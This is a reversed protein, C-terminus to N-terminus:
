SCKRTADRYSGTSGSRCRGQRRGGLAKATSPNAGGNLRGTSYMDSMQSGAAYMRRASLTSQRPLQPHQRQRPRLSRSPPRRRSPHQNQSSRASMLSRQRQCWQMLKLLHPSSLASSSRLRNFMNHHVETDGSM